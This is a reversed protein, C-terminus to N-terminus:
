SSRARRAPRLFGTRTQATGEPAEVRGKGQQRDDREEGVAPPIRTEEHVGSRFGMVRQAPELLPAAVRRLQCQQQETKHVTANHEARELAADETKGEGREGALRGPQQDTDSQRQGGPQVKRTVHAPAMQNNEPEDGADPEGDGEEKRGRREAGALHQAFRFHARQEADDSRPDRDGRRPQESDSSKSPRVASCDTLM